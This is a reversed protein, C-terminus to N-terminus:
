SNRQRAQAQEAIDLEQMKILASENFRAPAYRVGERSPATLGVITCPLNAADFKQRIFEAEAADHTSMFLQYKNLSVMNRMLDVFSAVHVIDNHQLPDDMLLARWRAWPYATSAACLISFGNAALQGESLVVQPPLDTSHLIDAKPDKYRIKLDFKTRNKQHKADLFISEGSTTLLADNFEGIRDNLPELFKTAFDSAEDTLRAGFIKVAEQASETMKLSSRASVERRDLEELFGDPDNAAVEGATEAMQRVINAITTRSLTAEHQKALAVVRDQLLHANIKSQHLESGRAQLTIASPEGPLGAQVWTSVLSHSEEIFAVKQALFADMEGQAAAMTTRWVMEEEGAKLAAHKCSLEQIRLALIEQRLTMIEYQSNNLAIISDNSTEIRSRVDTLAIERENEARSAAELLGELTSLGDQSAALRALMASSRADNGANEAVATTYATEADSRLSKAMSVLTDLSAAPLESSLIREISGAREVVLDLEQRRADRAGIVKKREEIVRELSGLREARMRYSAEASALDADQAAAMGEAILKLRGAAFETACVPCTRDDTHIHSALEAVASALSTARQRLPTVVLVAAEVRHAAELREEELRKLDQAALAAMMNAQELTAECEAKENTAVVLEDALSSRRVADSLIKARDSVIAARRSVEDLDQRLLNVKIKEDAIRALLSLKEARLRGIERTNAVVLELDSRLMELESLRQIAKSLQESVRESDISCTLVRQGADKLSRESEKVRSRLIAEAEVSVTKSALEIYRAPYSDFKSLMEIRTIVDRDFDSLAGRLGAIREAPDVRGDAFEIGAIRCDLELTDLLNGLDEASLDGVALAAKRLSSLNGMWDQWRRRLTDIADIVERERQMRRGFALHVGKGVLSSKVEELRDIGSPGRLTEWQTRRERNAFRSESAQGLFHTFALYTGVDSIEAAWREAKLLEVVARPPLSEGSKRTIEGAAGFSLRVMHEGDTANRRTLHRNSSGQVYPRFRKVDDTLCWELADFFSSKGLGNAGVILTLGPAAPIQINFRGFTRFDEIEIESIFIQDM